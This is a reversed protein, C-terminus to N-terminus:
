WTALFAFVLRRNMAVRFVDVGTVDRVEGDTRRM